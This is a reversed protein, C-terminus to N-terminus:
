RGSIKDASNLKIIGKLEKVRQEAQRLEGPTLRTALIDREKRAVEDTIGALSFYAYAEVPNKKVGVGEDYCLALNFQAEPHGKEASFILWKIAESKSKEVGAGNLYCLGLNYQADASGADAAKRFLSAAEPENKTVGEGQVLCLALNFQASSDGQAASRRYWRVAESM